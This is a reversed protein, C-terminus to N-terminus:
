ATAEKEVHAGAIAENGCACMEATRANEQSFVKRKGYEERKGKNWNKVDRYYGVVRAYVECEAGKCEALEAKVQAIEADIEAVTRKKAKAEEQM